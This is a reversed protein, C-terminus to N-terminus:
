SEIVAVNYFGFLYNYICFLLFLGVCFYLTTPWPTFLLLLFNIWTLWKKHSIEITDGDNVELKVTKTGFQNIELVAPEEPFFIENTEDLKLKEEQGNLKIKMSDGAGMIGTNRHITIHM